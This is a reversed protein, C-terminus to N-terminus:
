PAGRARRELLLPGRERPVVTEGVAVEPAVLEVRESTRQALPKAVLRDLQEVALEHELEARAADVLTTDDARREARRWGARRHEGDAVVPGVLIEEARKRALGDGDVDTSALRDRLEADAVPAVDAREELAHERARAAPSQSTHADDTHP